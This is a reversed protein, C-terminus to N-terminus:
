VFWPRWEWPPNSCDQGSSVQADLHFSEGTEMVKRLEGVESRTFTMVEKRVSFFFYPTCQIASFTNECSSLIGVYKPCICQAPTLIGM